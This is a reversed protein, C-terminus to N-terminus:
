IPIIVLWNTILKVFDRIPGQLLLLWDFAYNVFQNTFRM